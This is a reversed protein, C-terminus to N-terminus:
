SAAGERDRIIREALQWDSMRDIDIPGEAFPLFVPVTSV